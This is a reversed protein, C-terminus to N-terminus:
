LCVDFNVIKLWALTYSDCLVWGDRSYFVANGGRFYFFISSSFSTQIRGHYTRVVIGLIFRRSMSVEHLFFSDIDRLSRQNLRREM